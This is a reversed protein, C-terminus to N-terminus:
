DDTIEEETINYSPLLLNERFAGNNELEFLDDDINILPYKLRYLRRFFLLLYARKEEINSVDKFGQKTFWNDLSDHSSSDYLTGRDLLRIEHLCGNRYKDLGTFCRMDGRIEHFDLWNEYDGNACSSEYVLMAVLINGSPLMNRRSMIIMDKALEWSSKDQLLELIKIYQNETM